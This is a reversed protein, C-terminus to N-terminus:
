NKIKQKKIFINNGHGIRFTFYDEIFGATKPIVGYRWTNM